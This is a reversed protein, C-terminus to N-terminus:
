HDFRFDIMKIRDASKRLLKLNSFSIQHYRIFINVFRKQTFQIQFTIDNKLFFISLSLRRIVHHLCHVLINVSLM